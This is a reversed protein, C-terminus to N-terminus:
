RRQQKTKAKANLSCWMNSQRIRDAWQPLLHMGASRFIITKFGTGRFAASYSMQYLPFHLVLPLGLRDLFFSLTAPSPPHSLKLVSKLPTYAAHKAKRERKKPSPNIPPNGQDRELTQASRSDAEDSELLRSQLHALILQLNTLPGLQFHDFLHAYPYPHCLVFRFGFDSILPQTDNARRTSEFLSNM